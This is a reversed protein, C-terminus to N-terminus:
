HTPFRLGVAYLSKRSSETSGVKHCCNSSPGKRNWCPLALDMCFHNTTIPTSSSPEGACLGSRLGMSFRQSSNSHRSRARGWWEDKSISTASHFFTWAAINWCRASLRGLLTSATIAAVPPVLERNIGMFKSHSQHVPTWMCKTMYHVKMTSRSTNTHKWM